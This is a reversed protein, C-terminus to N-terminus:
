YGLSLAREGGDRGGRRGWAGWCSRGRGGEGKGVHVGGFGCAGVAAREWPRVCRSKGPVLAPLLRLFTLPGAGSCLALQAMGEDFEGSAFLHHGYVLRLRDELARCPARCPVSFHLVPHPYKFQSSSPMLARSACCALAHGTTAWVLPLPAGSTHPLSKHKLWPQPLAVSGVIGGLGRSECLHGRRPLM